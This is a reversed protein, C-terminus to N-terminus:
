SEGMMDAIGATRDVALTAVLAELEDLRQREVRSATSLGTAVVLLVLAPIPRWWNAKVM